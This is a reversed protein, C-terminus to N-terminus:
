TLLVFSGLPLLHPPPAPRAPRRDLVRWVDPAEPLVAVVVAPPPAPVDSAGSPAPREPTGRDLPTDVCGADAISDTAGDDAVDDCHGAAIAEVAIHDPAVCLVAAAPVGVGVTASLLALLTCLLRPLFM